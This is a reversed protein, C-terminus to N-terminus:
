WIKSNSDKAKPLKPAPMARYKELEEASLTYIKVEGNADGKITKTPQMITTLSQQAMSVAQKGLSEGM